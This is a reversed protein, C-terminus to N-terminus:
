GSGGRLAKFLGVAFVVTSFAGLIAPIYYIGQYDLGDWWQGYVATGWWAGQYAVIIKTVFAWHDLVTRSTLKLGYHLIGSVVVSIVLLIVFSIFQEM